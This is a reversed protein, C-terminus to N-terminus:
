WRADNMQCALLCGLASITGVSGIGFGLALNEATTACGQLTLTSSLLMPLLLQGLIRSCTPRRQPM